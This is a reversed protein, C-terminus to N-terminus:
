AGGVQLLELTLRAQTPNGLRDYMEIKVKLSNVVCKKIFYGLCFTMEPPKSFNPSNSEPPLFSELFEIWSLIYGTSPNNYLFLETSFARQEGKVFQTLPYAMGPSSIEAYTASRSYELTTPNYQFSMLENTSNNKIWGKNNSYKPM